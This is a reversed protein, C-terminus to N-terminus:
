KKRKPATDAASEEVAEVAPVAAAVPAAELVQWGGEKSVYIPDPGIHTAFYQALLAAGESATVKRPGFLMVLRQGQVERTAIECDNLHM